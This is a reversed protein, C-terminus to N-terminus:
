SRGTDVLLYVRERSPAVLVISAPECNTGPSQDVELGKSNAELSVRAEECTKVHIWLARDKSRPAREGGPKKLGWAHLEPHFSSFRPLALHNKNTQENKRKM